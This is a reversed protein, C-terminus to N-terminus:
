LIKPLFTPSLTRLGELASDSLVLNGEFTGVIHLDTANDVEQLTLVALAGSLPIETNAEDILKVTLSFVASEARVALVSYWIIRLKIKRPPVALVGCCFVRSIPLIVLLFLQNAELILSATRYSTPGVICGLKSVSSKFLPSM